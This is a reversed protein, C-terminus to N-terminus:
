AGACVYRLYVVVSALDEDSLDKYLMYPMIPLITTDDHKIGERIARAILDDAWNGAGTEKDPTINPIVIHGPFGALGIPQGAFDMGVVQPAGHKTFDRPTHCTTCGLVSQTLYRGRALREPTSEFQRNTTARKRPGLFPRWGITFNIGLILLLFVAVGIVLVAKRVKTM